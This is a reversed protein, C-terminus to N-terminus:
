SGSVAYLARLFIGTVGHYAKNRAIIKKKNVQSLRQKDTGVDYLSKVGCRDTRPM